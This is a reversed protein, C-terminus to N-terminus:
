INYKKSQLRLELEEKNKSFYKIEFWNITRCHDEFYGYDLGHPINEYKIKYTNIIDNKSIIQGINSYIFDYLKGSIGKEECYVYDGVNPNSVYKKYNKIM